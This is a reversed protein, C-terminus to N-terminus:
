PAGDGVVATVTMEGAVEFTLTVEIEAGDELPAVLDLLMVHYGGPELSVTEGAPVELRDIPVMEMMPTTTEDDGEMGDDATTDDAMGDDATTDDAMGEDSGGMDGEAARTEHIETTAAVSTPVSAAVLADDEEGDNTIQMYVAGASAVMPSSRAWAGEVAIAGEADAAGSTAETTEAAATTDTAVEGGDDDDGCAGLLLGAALGVTGLLAAARRAPTPRTTM